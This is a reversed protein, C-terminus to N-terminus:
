DEEAHSESLCIRHINECRRCFVNVWNDPEGHESWIDFGLAVLAARLKSLCKKKCEDHTM